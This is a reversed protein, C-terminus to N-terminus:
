HQHAHKMAEKDKFSIPVSLIPKDTALDSFKLSYDGKIEEGERSRIALWLANRDRPQLDYLVGDKFVPHRTLDLDVVPASVYIQHNLEPTGELAVRANGRYPPIVATTVILTYRDKGSPLITSHRVKGGEASILSISHASDGWRHSAGALSILVAFVFFVIKKM